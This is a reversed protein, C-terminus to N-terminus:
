KAVTLDVTAVGTTVEVPATTPKGKESWTKLTYKGPPVDKIDFAGAADTTAFYPTPVVVVYGAMEPHVNCLLPAVGVEDFTYSKHEGKPWTGLNQSLKKNGGLSPWFVNHLVTDSNLFDVTTGKLAVLVHPDFKLNKQDMMAHKSPPPFNQGPITDVYVVVITGAPGTVKGKIEGAQATGALLVLGCVARLLRSSFHKEM